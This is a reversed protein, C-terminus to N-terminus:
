NKSLNNEQEDFYRQRFLSNQKFIKRAKESKGMGGFFQLDIFKEWLTVKKLVRKEEGSSTEHRM